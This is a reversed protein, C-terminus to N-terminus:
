LHGGCVGGFIDVKSVELSTYRPCRWLHRGGFVDVKPVELSTRLCRIVVVSVKLSEVVSVKLSEVMCVNLSTWRSVEVIDVMSVAM